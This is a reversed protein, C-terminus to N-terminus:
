DQPLLEGVWQTAGHRHNVPTHWLFRGGTTPGGGVGFSSVAESLRLLRGADLDYVYSGGRDRQYADLTVVADPGSGALAGDIDSDQITVVQDGDTTLVQVRDDRVGGAYTGCYQGMVVHEDTAGFSLLNCREGARPDFDHEAGSALDRVHVRGAAGNTSDTWVMTADTFAVSGVTLDEDVVDAPDTLSVSWLRYTDGDAEADEAEGGEGVPWGGEPPAGPHEGGVRLAPRRTRDPGRLPRRRAADALRGDDVGADFPRPRPCAAAPGTPAPAPAPSCWGTPASSSRGPRCRASDRTRCGTASARRPTWCRSGRLLRDARPGDRFLVLGDDTVGDLYQGNDRDLNRNTHSTLVRLDRDVVATTADGLSITPRTRCRDSRPWTAPPPGGDPWAVAATTVVAATLLAAGGVVGTRRRALRRRGAATVEALDLHDPPPADVNERMLAKLENVM